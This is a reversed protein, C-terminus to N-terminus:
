GASGGSAHWLKRPADASPRVDPLPTVAPKHEPAPSPHLRRERAQRRREQEYAEIEEVGEEWLARVDLTGGRHRRTLEALDWARECNISLGRAGTKRLTGRVVLLWSHFVTWACHEQVSEFVTADVLGSGDDLTLFIIRQGSRVAPTQSAVKVGAVMVRAGQRKRRLDRERTVGLTWLTPEYFSVIHRSVDMATIELEARVKEADTYGRLGYVVDDELALALQAVESKPERKEWLDNVQVLLDRRRGLADLAGAHILNEVVPRSVAARRCFDVLMRYPRAAVIRDCEADSIGEVNMLGMRVGLGGNHTREVTYPRMSANVDLPLIPTGEHRADDLIARRPYMGPEHTLVGAYFAAPHHAKLWASQYTPVAFAAAHAKCFGFAAFAVVEHWVRKITPEDWGQARARAAFWRELAPVKDPDGLERRIEDAKGLDVGTATAIAQMLQEHFVVVGFSEQLFPRLSPHPYVPADFAHRRNLYPNIMDSQVPGPRFLSIDVILDRWKTPQFKGLLERQGPSEIQFCGLTRSARILEFTPEDDRPIADLDVTLGQTREIEAAAHTMSSLMRIGIVDLKLLGLAEVDDKDFQTMRFGQASRELPARTSLDDPGILIGSPHLALHRPFGGLREAVAFLLELQRKPLSSRKLEPLHELAERIHGASIHPFSKAVDGVEGEPYGLAKGVERIAGRARYTDVMAVCAVQEPSFAALVDRYVEERRASEVDIDIDPLEHARYVNVFREFLLGHELPDVESIGTVYCILSGAGSGRCASRVGKEKIRAVIDAVTLFYGAFGLKATLALEHDLRDRLAQTARLRRRAIGDWCRRALLENTTAGRPTRYLPLHLRGLELDVTCEEAVRAANELLDPRGPFLAAMEEPSKLTAEYNTSDRHHPALPVLKRMADLVDCLFGDATTLARVGNTAIAPLGATGALALARAIRTQSRQELTNRVEVVVRNGGFAELWARLARQAGDIDRRDLLAGVDSEPGLLLFVGSAHSAIDEQTATPDGRDGRHHAATLIKCINAFGGRDRALVTILSRNEMTIRAGYIPKLGHEYCAQAFRIAGGLSNTDTVAVSFMGLARVRAALEDLRVAGERLSHVSRVSLHAFKPISM